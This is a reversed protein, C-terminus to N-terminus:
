KSKRRGRTRLIIVILEEQKEGDSIVVLNIYCRALHIKNRSSIHM